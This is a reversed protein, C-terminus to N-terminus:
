IVFCRVERKLIDKIKNSVHNTVHVCTKANRNTKRTNELPKQKHNQIEDVEVLICTASKPSRKEQFM